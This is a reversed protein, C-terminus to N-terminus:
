DEIEEVADVVRLDIQHHVVERLAFVVRVHNIPAEAVEGVGDEVGVLHVHLPVERPAHLILEKQVRYSLLLTEALPELRRDHIRNDYNLFDVAEACVLGFRGRHDESFILDILESGSDILATLLALTYISSHILVTVAHSCRRSESRDVLRRDLPRWRHHQFDRESLRVVEQFNALRQGANTDGRALGCGLEILAAVDKVLLTAVEDNVELLEKEQVSLRRVEEAVVQM